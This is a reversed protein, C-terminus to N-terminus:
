FRQSLDCCDDGQLLLHTPDFGHTHPLIGATFAPADSLMEFRMGLVSNLISIVSWITLVCTASCCHPIYSTFTICTILTDSLSRKKGKRYLGARVPNIDKTVEFMKKNILLMNRNTHLRLKQLKTMATVTYTFIPCNIVM